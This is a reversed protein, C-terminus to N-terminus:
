FPMSPLGKKSLGKIKKMMKQSQRFRKLLENVDRVATGSGGAIRRKRGADLRDPHRREWPTMSEIIARMRKMEAGSAQMMADRRDAPVSPIGPIMELLNELPGLKNLQRLQDLFDQLDLRNKRLKEEVHRAEEADFAEEAKEVLSVVDGMGLIRSAMREPHFPQLDEPKEGWGVMRVPCGTVKQISLAAGGRADGDLKTLILGTLGVARNFAEAVHVSEQGAAADLTLLVEEPEVAQRLEKLEEVLTDDIQLRGGTDFIVADYDGRRAADLAKRGVSEVCEGPTPKVIDAGVQAALTELQEVAAPRRTDCAALLVRRGDRIWRLALKAATTTKGAGHLGLLLVRYLRGTPPEPPRQDPHTLLAVLEEHVRKVIQQGPKISQLVDEGSASEKVHAVFEKVVGYHVDAELLAMRVERLADRINRDNLTGHGRLQKFVRQLSSTLTDFM